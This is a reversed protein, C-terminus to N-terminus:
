ATPRRKKSIWYASGIAVLGALGSGLVIWLTVTLPSDDKTGTRGGYTPVIGARYEDVSTGKRGIFDTLGLNEYKHLIFDYRSVFSAVTANTAYLSSVVTADGTGSVRYAAHRYYSKQLDSLVGFDEELSAWTEATTDIGYSGDGDCFLEEAFMDSMEWDDDSFAVVKFLRPRFYEEGDINSIAYAGFCNYQSARYVIGRTATNVNNIIPTQNNFSISWKAKDNDGSTSDATKFNSSTGYSLYKSGNYFGYEGDELDSLTWAYANLDTRMVKFTSDFTDEWVEGFAESNIHGSISIPMLSASYSSVSGTVHALIYQEGDVLDSDSTCETLFGWEINAVRVSFSCESGSYTLTITPTAEASFVYSEDIPTSGIKFTVDGSAFLSAVSLEVESEDNYHVTLDGDAVFRDGITYAITQGSISLEDIAKAIVTITFGNGVGSTVGQYTVSVENGSQGVSLVSGIAPSTTFGSTINTTAGSAWTVQVSIGSVDLTQGEVYSTKTPNTIVRVSSVTNKTITITCINSYVESDVVDTAHMKIQVTVTASSMVGTKATITHGEYDIYEGGSVVVLESAKITADENYTVSPTYDQGEYLLPASAGYSEPITISSIETVDIQKYLYVNNQGSSYTAFIPNGNNPNYRIYRSSASSQMTASGDDEFSITFTSDDASDIKLYNQGDVGVMYGATGAYNKTYFRWAGSQGELRLVLATTNAALTTNSNSVSLSTGPRNNAKDTTSAFQVADGSTGNGIIYHGNVDLDEVSTCLMYVGDINPKEPPTVKVVLSVSGGDVDTFTVTCTGVSVATITVSSGSSVSASSVTAIAPTNSVVSISTSHGSYYGTQSVTPVIDESESVSLTIPGADSLTVSHTSATITVECEATSSEVDLEDVAYVTITPTCAADSAYTITVTASVTEVTASASSNIKAESASSTTWVYKVPTIYSPTATLTTSQGRYGSAETKDLTVKPSTDNYWISISSIYISNTSCTVTLLVSGTENPSFVYYLPRGTTGGSTTVTQSQATGSGVKVSVSGAGSSANTCYTVQIGTVNTFTRPSTANAGSTKETTQVGQEAAFSNGDKGSTWNAASGGSTAAWSKTTFTYDVRTGAPSFSVTVVCEATIENLDVSTATLTTTGPKLGEVVVEDGNAVETTGFTIPSDDVSLSVIGAASSTFTVKNRAGGTATVVFSDSSGNSIELEDESLEVVVSSQWQAFLTTNSTITFTGGAAYSAGSGNAATNWGTFSYNTRALSGTNGLVTVTAGSAYPSSPDTPVSGSTSGNGDYTVTFSSATTITFNVVMRTVKGTASGVSTKFFGKGSGATGSSPAEATGYYTTFSGESSTVAVSNVTGLDTTNYLYGNNKQWQMASSQQMVQNTYFEVSMKKTADTTCVAEKDHSGNNAAYSATSFDSPELTLEYTVSEARSEIAGSSLKLGFLGGLALSFSCFVLGLFAAFKGKKRM